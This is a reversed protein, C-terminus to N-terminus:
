DKMALEFASIGFRTFWGRLEADSVTKKGLIQKRKKAMTGSKALAAAYARGLIAVGELASGSKVFRSGAGKGRVMGYGQLLYRLLTFFVSTLAMPLPFCKM